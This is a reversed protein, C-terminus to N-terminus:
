RTQQQVRRRSRFTDLLVVTAHLLHYPIESKLTLGASIRRHNIFTVSPRTAFHDFRACGISETILVNKAQSQSPCFTRLNQVFLERFVIVISSEHISTLLPMPRVSAREVIVTSIFTFCTESQLDFSIPRCECDLPHKKSVKLSQVLVAVRCRSDHLVTRSLVPRVVFYFRSFPPFSNTEPVIRTVAVSVTASRIALLHLKNALLSV